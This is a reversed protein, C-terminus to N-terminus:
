RRKIWWVGAVALIILMALLIIAVPDMVSFM